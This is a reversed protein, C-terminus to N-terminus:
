QVIIGFGTKSATGLYFLMTLLLRDKSVDLLYASLENFANILSSSSPFKQHHTLSLLFVFSRSIFTDVGGGGLRMAGKLGGSFDRRSQSFVVSFGPSCITLESTKVM